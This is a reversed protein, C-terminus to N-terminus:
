NFTVPGLQGANFQGHDPQLRLLEAYLQGLLSVMLGPVEPLIFSWTVWHAFVQEFDAFYREISRQELTIKNVKFLYNDM